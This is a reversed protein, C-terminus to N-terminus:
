WLHARGASKRGTAAHRRCFQDPAPAVAKRGVSGELQRLLQGTPTGGIILHVTETGPCFIMM